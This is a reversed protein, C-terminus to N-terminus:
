AALLNPMKLTLVTQTGQSLTRKFRRSAIYYNGQLGHVTDNVAVMTDPAWYTGNIVHGKVTYTATWADFLGRLAKWRARANAQQLNTGPGNVGVDGDAFSTYRRFPLQSADKYSGSFNGAHPNFRDPLASPVVVTGVCTVDTYVGEIDESVDADDVNNLSRSSETPRHYHLTGVTEGTYTPAYIKVYGDITMGVLRKIRRAYTVLKDSIMDGPEFCIPPIFTDVPARANLIAQRGQNLRGQLFLVDATNSGIVGQIGWSPDLAKQLFAGMTLGSLRLYLRGTNEVIHWGLDAGAIDWTTGSGGSSRARVSTALGLLIPVQSGSSVRPDTAYVTVKSGRSIQGTRLGYPNAVKATFGDALTLVNSDISYEVLDSFELPPNPGVQLSISTLDTSM